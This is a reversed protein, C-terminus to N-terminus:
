TKKLCDITAVIRKFIEQHKEEILRPRSIKYTTYIYNHFTLGSEMARDLVNFISKNKPSKEILSCLLEFDEISLYYYGKISPLKFYANLRSAIDRELPPNTAISSISVAFLYVEKVSTLDIWDNQPILEELRDHLQCLPDIILRNIEDHISEKGSFFISNKHMYKAKSEFAFLKRRGIMLLGDPSKKSDYKFEPILKMAPSDRVSCKLLVTLYQEFPKGFFTHFKSRATGSYCREIKIKLSIFFNGYLTKYFLPIATKGDITLLPKEWFRTFDWDEKLTELAWSRAEEISVMMSSVVAKAVEDLRTESFLNQVDLFCYTNIVRDDNSFVAYLGFIVSAYQWISFGYFNEFDINFDVFENEDYLSIDTAIESCIYLTRVIEAGWDGISNFHTNRVFDYPLEEKLVTGLNDSVIMCIYIVVMIAAQPDQKEEREFNGYALIWKATVLLGQTSYLVKDQLTSEIHNIFSAYGQQKARERLVEIFGQRLEPADGFDPFATLQSIVCLCMKAPAEQVLAILEQESYRVGFVDSYTLFTKALDRFQVM